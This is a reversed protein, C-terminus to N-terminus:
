HVGDTAVAAPANADVLECFSWATSSSPEIVHSYATWDPAGGGGKENATGTVQPAHITGTTNIVRPPGADSHTAPELGYGVGAVRVLRVQVDVFMAM